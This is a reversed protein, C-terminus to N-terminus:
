KGSQNGLAMILRALEKAQKPSALGGAMAPYGRWKGAVGHVISDTLIDRAGRQGHYRKAIDSFSPGITSRYVTHCSFCAPSNSRVYQVLHQAAPSATTPENQPLSGMTGGMMGGGMMRGGMQVPTIRGTVALAPLSILPLGALVCGALANRSSVKM